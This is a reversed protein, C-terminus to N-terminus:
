IIQEVYKKFTEYDRAGTIRGVEKGTRDIFISVPIGTGVRFSQVAQGNAILMVWGLEMQEAFKKVNGPNDNVAMGLIELGQGKYEDYIRKLDPIERRCPPCWTGWFNIILPHQGKFEEFRRVKGDIDYVAFTAGAATAAQQASPGSDGTRTQDNDSSSCGIIMAILVCLSLLLLRKM